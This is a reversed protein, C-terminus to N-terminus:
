HLVLFQCLPVVPHVPKMQMSTCFGSSPVALSYSHCHFHNPCTSTLPPTYLLQQIMQSSLMYFNNRM